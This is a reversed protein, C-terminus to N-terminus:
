WRRLPPRPWPFHAKQFDLVRSAPYQSFSQLFRSFRPIARNQPCYVPIVKWAYPLFSDLRAYYPRVCLARRRESQPRYAKRAQPSRREKWDKRRVIALFARSGGARRPPSTDHYQFRGGSCLYGRAYDSRQMAPFDYRFPPAILSGVTSDYR